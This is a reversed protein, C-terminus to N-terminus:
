TFKLEASCGLPLVVEWRDRYVRICNVTPDPAGAIEIRVGSTWRMEFHDGVPSIKPMVERIFVLTAKDAVKVRKTKVANVIATAVGAACQLELKDSSPKVASLLGSLDCNVTLRDRNAEVSKVDFKYGSAAVAIRSAWSFTVSDAGEVCMPLVGGAFTAEASGISAKGIKLADFFMAAYRGYVPMDITALKM